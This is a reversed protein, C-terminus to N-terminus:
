PAPNKNINSVNPNRIPGSDAPVAVLRSTTTVIQPTATPMGSEKLKWGISIKKNNLDALTEDLM